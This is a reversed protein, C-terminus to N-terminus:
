LYYICRSAPKGERKALGKILSQHLRTLWQSLQPYRRFQCVSEGAVDWLRRSLRYSYLDGMRAFCTPRTKVSCLLPSVGPKSPQRKLIEILVSGGSRDNTRQLLPTRHAIRVGLM